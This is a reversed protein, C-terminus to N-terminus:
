WLVGTEHSIKVERSHLAHYVPHVEFKEEPKDEPMKTPVGQKLIVLFVNDIFLIRINKICIKTMLKMYPLLKLITLVLDFHCPDIEAQCHIWLLDKTGKVAQKIVTRTSLSDM